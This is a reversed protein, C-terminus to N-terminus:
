LLGVPEDNRDPFTDTFSPTSAAATLALEALTRPWTTRAM